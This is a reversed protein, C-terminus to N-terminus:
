GSTRSSGSGSSSARAGSVREPQVARVAAPARRPLRATAAVEPLPPVPRPAAPLAARWDATPPRDARCTPPGRNPAITGRQALIASNASASTQPALPSFVRPPELGGGRVTSGVCSARAREHCGSGTTASSPRTPSARRSSWGPSRSAPGCRPRSSRTRRRTSEACGSASRGSARERGAPKGRWRRYRSSRQHIMSLTTHRYSGSMEPQCGKWSTQLGDRGHACTPHPM